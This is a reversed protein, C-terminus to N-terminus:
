TLKSWQRASGILEAAEEAEVPASFYYGQGYDAELAQLQALQGTTEIGEAVVNMNLNHALTVIAHNIAAYQVNEATNHIFARDIKLANIPFQHLCSLSSHGTGFDDMSLCIGKERLRSLIPVISDIKDMIASETVELMLNWPDVGNVAMANEIQDALDPEFVQRKSLNVSISLARNPFQQQWSRLQRCAENLVWQGIPVILGTEEAIPIFQMPSVPGHGPRSWRALAEFGIVTGSTLSVIPQYVLKLARHEVASRLDSEMELRMMVTEHMTNSFVTHRAKGLEKAEHMATDADRLVAVPNDYGVESTAIGLSVTVVIEYGEIEFPRSLAKQIGEAIRSADNPKDIGDLLVIFEDGGLRATTANLPSLTTDLDGLCSLLRHTTGILLEDGANHGLSDNIMKFGDLDLFLVAFIYGDQRRARKICRGIEDLLLARNPLNTLVDHFADHRIRTEALEHQRALDWKETMMLIMQRVEAMVFPKKLILLRGTTGFRNVMEDWSSDPDSTCSIIQINPDVTCIHEIMELGGWGISMEIDVFAVAYPNGETLAQRIKDLGEQGLLASNIEYSADVVTTESTALVATTKDNSDAIKGLTLAKRILAHIAENDDIVLVRRNDQKMPTM